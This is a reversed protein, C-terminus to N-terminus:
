AKERRVEKLRRRALELEKLPTKQSKKVFAHLVVVERGVVTCFLARGIGEHGRARIEFLADGLSRTFPMGLNPGFQEIRETIRAYVARMGVPWSDISRIVDESYYRIAWTM